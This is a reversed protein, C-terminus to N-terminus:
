GRRIFWIGVKYSGLLSYFNPSSQIAGVQNSSSQIAKSNSRTYHFAGTMWSSQLGFKPITHTQYWNPTVIMLSKEYSYSWNRTTENYWSPWTFVNVFNLQLYTVNM